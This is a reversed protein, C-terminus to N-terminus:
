KGIGANEKITDLLRNNFKVQAEEVDVCFYKTIEVAENIVIPAPTNAFLLEFTALRIIARDVYSLRDITWKFLSQKIVEDIQDLHKITGEYLEQCFSLIDSEVKLEYYDEVLEIAQEFGIQDNNIDNQYLAIISLLRAQHRKM